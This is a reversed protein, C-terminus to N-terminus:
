ASGVSHLAHHISTQIAIMELLYVMCLMAFFFIPVVLAAELTLSGKSTFTSAREKHINSFYHPPNAMRSDLEKRQRLIQYQKPFNHFSM